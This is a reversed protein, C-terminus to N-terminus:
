CEALSLELTLLNFKLQQLLQSASDSHESTISRAPTEALQSELNQIRRQDQAIVQRMQLLGATADM